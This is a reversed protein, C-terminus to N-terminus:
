ERHSALEARRVRLRLRHHADAGAVRRAELRRGGRKLLRPPQVQVGSAGDAVEHKLRLRRERRQAHALHLQAHASHAEVEAVHQVHKALVWAVGAWRTAVRRAHELSACGRKVNILVGDKAQCVGRERAHRM